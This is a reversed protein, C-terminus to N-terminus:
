GFPRGSILTPLVLRCVSMQCKLFQIFLCIMQSVQLTWSFSRSGIMLYSRRSATWSVICFVAGSSIGLLLFCPFISGGDDWFLSVCFACAKRCSVYTFSSVSYHWRISFQHKMVIRKKLYHNTICHHQKENKKECDLLNM